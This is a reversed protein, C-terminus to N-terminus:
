KTHRFMPRLCTFYDYINEWKTSSHHHDLLYHGGVMNIICVLDRRSFFISSKYELGWMTSMIM